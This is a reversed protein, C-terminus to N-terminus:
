ALKCRVADDEDDDDDEDEDDEGEGATKFDGDSDDDEDGDPQGAMGNGAGEAHQLVAEAEDFEDDMLDSDALSESDSDDAVASNVHQQVQAKVHKKAPKLWGANDDSFGAEKPSAKRGNAPKAVQEGGSATAIAVPPTAGSRGAKAALSKSQM